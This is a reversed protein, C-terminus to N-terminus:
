ATFGASFKRKVRINKMIKHAVWILSFFLVFFLNVAFLTENEITESKIFCITVIDIHVRDPM